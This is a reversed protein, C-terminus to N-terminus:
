VKIKNNNNNNNNGSKKLVNPNRYIHRVSGMLKQDLSDYDFDRDITSTLSYISESDSPLVKPVKSFATSYIDSLIDSDVTTDLFDRRPSTNPAGFMSLEEKSPFAFEDDTPEDRNDEEESEETDDTDLTDDSQATMSHSSTSRTVIGSDLSQPNLNEMSHIKEKDVLDQM